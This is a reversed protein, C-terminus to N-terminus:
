TRKRQKADLGHKRAVKYLAQRTMGAMTAAVEVKGRAEDLVRQLYERGALRIADKFTM